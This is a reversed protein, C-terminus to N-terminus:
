SRRLAYSTWLALFAQRQASDDCEKAYNFQDRVREWSVPSRPEDFGTPSLPDIKNPCDVNYIATKSKQIWSKWNFM